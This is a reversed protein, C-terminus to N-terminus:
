ITEMKTLNQVQQKVNEAMLLSHAETPPLSGVDLLRALNTLSELWRLLPTNPPEGPPPTNAAKVCAAVGGCNSHEVVVVHKVKLHGVAYDVVSLANADCLHVQSYVWACNLSASSFVRGAYKAINRHIFIGGPESGKTVSAPVRLDKPSQGKASRISSDEDDEVAAQTWEINARSLDQM